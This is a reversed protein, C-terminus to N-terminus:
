VEDLDLDEVEDDEDEEEETEEEEEAGEDDEDEVEEDDDEDEDEEDLDVDEDASADQEVYDKAPFTDTIRSRVKDGYEDDEVTVAMKKGKYKDLDINVAKQPVKAGLAELTNRLVWLSQKKLNCNHYLKKGKYKKPEAIECLFVIQPTNKQGSTGKKVSLVKVLYDGPPVKAQKAKRGETDSFDVKVTKAM